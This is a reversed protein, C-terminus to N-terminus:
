NEYTASHSYAINPLEITACELAGQFAYFYKRDLLSQILYVQEGEGTSSTKAIGIEKIIRILHPENQGSKLWLCTKYYERLKSPNEIFVALGIYQPTYTVERWQGTEVIDHLGM